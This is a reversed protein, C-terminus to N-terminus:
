CLQRMNQSLGESLTKSTPLSKTRACRLEKLDALVAALLDWSPQVRGPLPARQRAKHLSTLYLFAAAVSGVQGRVVPIHM